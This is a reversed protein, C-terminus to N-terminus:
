NARDYRLLSPVPIDTLQFHTAPTLPEEIKNAQEETVFREGGGCGFMLALASATAIGAIWRSLTM